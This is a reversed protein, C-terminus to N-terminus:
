LYLFEKLSEGNLQASMESVDNNRSCKAVKNKGVYVRQAGRDRVSGFLSCNKAVM